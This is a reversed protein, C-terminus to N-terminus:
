ELNISIQHSGASPESDVLKADETPVVNNSQTDSLEITGQLLVPDQCHEEVMVMLEDISMWFLKQHLAELTATSALLELFVGDSIQGGAEIFWDPLSPHDSVWFDEASSLQREWQLTLSSWRWNPSSLNKIRKKVIHRQQEMVVM